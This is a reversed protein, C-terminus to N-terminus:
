GRSINPLVNWGSAVGAWPKPLPSLSMWTTGFMGATEQERKSAATELASFKGGDTRILLSSSPSSSAGLSVIELTTPPPIYPSFSPSHKGAMALHHIKSAAGAPMM